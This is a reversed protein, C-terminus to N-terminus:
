PAGGWQRVFVEQLARVHESTQGPRCVARRLGAEARDKGKAMTKDEPWLQGLSNDGGAELPLLHDVTRGELHAVWKGNVLTALGYRKAVELRRDAWQSSTLEARVKSAYGTVCITAPDSTRTAGPTLCPDPRDQALYVAPAACASNSAPVPVYGPPRGDDHAAVLALPVGVAVLVALVLGLAARRSAPPRPGPRAHQPPTM